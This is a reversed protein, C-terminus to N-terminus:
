GLGVTHNFSPISHLSIVVLVIFASPELSLNTVLGRVKSSHTKTSITVVEARQDRADLFDAVIRTTFLELMDDRAKRQITERGFFVRLNLCSQQVSKRLVQLLGYTEPWSLPIRDHKLVSEDNPPCVAFVTHSLEL